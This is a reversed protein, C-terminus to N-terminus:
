FSVLLLKDLVEDADGAHKFRHHFAYETQTSFVQRCRKCGYRTIGKIRIQYLLVKREQFNKHMRWALRFVCYEPKTKLLIYILSLKLKEAYRHLQNYHKLISETTPSIKEECILCSHTLQGPILMDVVLKDLVKSFEVNVLHQVLANLNGFDNGCLCCDTSLVSGLNAPGRNNEVKTITFAPKVDQVEKEEKVKTVVIGPAPLNIKVCRSKPQRDVDVEVVEGGGEGEDSSIVVVAPSPAPADSDGELVVVDEEPVIVEVEDDDRQHSRRWRQRRERAQRKMLAELKLERQMMIFRDAKTRDLRVQWKYRNAALYRPVLTTDVSVYCKALRIRGVKKKWDEGDKKTQNQNQNQNQNVLIRDM